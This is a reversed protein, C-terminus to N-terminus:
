ITSRITAFTSSTSADASPRFSFFFVALHIRYPEVSFLEPHSSLLIPTPVYELLRMTSTHDGVPIHAYLDLYFNRLLVFSTDLLYLDRYDAILLDQHNKRLRQTLRTLAKTVFRPHILASILKSSILMQDIGAYVYSYQDFTEGNLAVLRDYQDKLHKFNKTYDLITTMKKTEREVWQVHDSLIRIHRTDENVAQVMATSDGGGFIERKIANWHSVLVVGAM